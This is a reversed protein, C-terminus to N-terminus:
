TKEREKMEKLVQETTKIQSKDPKWEINKDEYDNYEVWGVGGVIITGEDDEWIDIVADKIAITKIHKM